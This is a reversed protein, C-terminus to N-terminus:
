GAAQWGYAKYTWVIGDEHVDVLTYGPPHVGFRNGNWWNGSIAGGTVYRTGLYAVEEVSHTHGQLVALVNKKQFRPVLEQANLVLQWDPMPEAAGKDYLWIAALLPIHASVLIPTKADTGDLVGDLWKMQEPDVFGRYTRDDKTEATDLTIFRVGHAEWTEYRGGRMLRQTMLSKGALPHTPQPNDGLLALVDHNGITYRFELGSADAAAKWLDYQQLSLELPAGRGANLLDGGHWVFDVRDAKVAQLSKRLWEDVRDTTRVHTDSYYAFRCRRRGKPANAFASPLAFAAAAGGAGVLLDRRRIM